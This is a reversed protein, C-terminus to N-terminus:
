RLLGELLEQYNRVRFNGNSLNNFEERIEKPVLQYFRRLDKRIGNMALEGMSIPKGDKSYNKYSEELESYAIAVRAIYKEDM